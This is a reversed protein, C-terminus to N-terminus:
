IIERLTDIVEFCGVSFHDKKYKNNQHEVFNSLTSPM